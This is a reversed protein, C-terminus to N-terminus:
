PRVGLQISKLFRMTSLQVVVVAGGDTGIYLFDAYAGQGLLCGGAIGDFLRGSNHRNFIGARFSACRLSTTVEGTTDDITATM